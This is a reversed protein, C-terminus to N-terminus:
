TRDVEPASHIRLHVCTHHSVSSWLGDFAPGAEYSKLGSRLPFLGKQKLGWSWSSALIHAMFGFM